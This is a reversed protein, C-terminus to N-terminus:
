GGGPSPSLLPSERTKWLIFWLRLTAPVKKHSRLLLPHDKFWFQAVQGVWCTGRHSERVRLGGPDTLLLLSCGGVEVLFWALLLYYNKLTHIGTEQRFTRHPLLPSPLMTGPSGETQGGQWPTPPGPWAAAQGTMVWDTQAEGGHAWRTVLTGWVAAQGPFRRAQFSFVPQQPCAFVAVTQEPIPAGTQLSSVSRM